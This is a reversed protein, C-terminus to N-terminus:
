SPLGDVFSLVADIVPQPRQMHLAHGLLPFKLAKGVPLLRMMEEVDSDKLLGGLEPNAQLVLVPCKLQPLLERGDYDSLNRGDAAGLMVEPDVQRLCDAWKLLYAENNGPLDGIEVPHDIGPVMIRVKALRQAIEHASGGPSIAHHLGTFLEQYMSDGLEEGSLVTDGLVLARVIEPYQAAVHMSAVGGLSHGFMVAPHGGVKDLFRAIDGAYDRSRYQNPTRGSKGHGRLDFAFVHWRGTFSPILPLFDLWNRGVGHLMVLPPGSAPGEAYNISVSGDSFTKEQLEALVPHLSSM